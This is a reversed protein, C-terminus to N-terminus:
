VVENGVNAVHEKRERERERQCKRKTVRWYDFIAISM